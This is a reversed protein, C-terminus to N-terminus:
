RARRPAPTPADVLQRAARILDALDFPKALCTDAGRKLVFQMTAEDSHASIVLVKVTPPTHPAPLLGHAPARIQRLVEFGNMGPMYLDLVVLDFPAIALRPLVDSGDDCTEVTYGHAALAHEVVLRISPDDDVVLVRPAM